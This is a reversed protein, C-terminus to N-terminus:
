KRNDEGRKVSLARIHKLIAAFLLSVTVILTVIIFYYLLLLLARRMSPIM